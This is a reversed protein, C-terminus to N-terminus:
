LVLNHTHNLVEQVVGNIIPHNHGQSVQTTQNIQNLTLIGENIVLTHTHPPIAGHVMSISTTLERPILSTDHIARFQYIPDTKRVRVATFSQKGDVGLMTRNRTVNIIEYRFEETGDRHFSILVDGDKLVPFSLTWGNPKYKNELGVESREIDEVTADFRVLIRGDSRRPNFFQEYGTVMDTGHNDFGRYATNERHNDYHKSVKGSVQRRLLVMPFGTTELLLEERQNQHDEFSLGRIPDGTSNPGTACYSEGGFYTGICKGGIYDEPRTRHYGAYDYRKFDENFCDPIETNPYVISDKEKFGEGPVFPYHKYGDFNNEELMISINTEEFGSFYRVYPNQYEVGDFGDTNHMRINTNYMGRLHEASILLSNQLDISDYGIFENGIRVIGFPPYLSIDSVHIVTGDEPLDTLLSSEPYIRTGDIVPLQNLDIKNKPFAAARVAFYYVDGPILSTIASSTQEPDIVVFKVGESFVDEFNTAYYVNYALTYNPLPPTARYWEISITQGDGVASAIKIGAFPPNVYTPIPFSCTM